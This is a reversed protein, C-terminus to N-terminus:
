AHERCDVDARPHASGPGVVRWTLAGGCGASADRGQDPPITQRDTEGDVEPRASRSCTGALQDHEASTALQSLEHMRREPLASDRVGRVRPM